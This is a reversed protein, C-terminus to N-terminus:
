GRANEVSKRLRGFGGFMQKAVCPEATALLECCYQAFENMIVMVRGFSL